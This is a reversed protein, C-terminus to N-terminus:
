RVRGRIRYVHALVEAVAGYLQAPVSRGIRVAAFLARALPPNHVVPVQYSRAVARIRAALDDHGKAVVQPAQMTAADYRLAVAYHTPNVVVVDARRVQAMMSKRLMERRKMAQRRKVGPDGDHERAEDRVEQKSM